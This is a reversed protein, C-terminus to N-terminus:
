GAASVPERAGQEEQAASAEDLARLQTRFSTAWPDSQECANVIPEWQPNEAFMPRLTAIVQANPADGILVNIVTTALAGALGGQNEVECLMQWVVGAAQEPSGNLVAQIEEPSLYIPEPGTGSGAPAHGNQQAVPEPPQAPSPPASLPTPPAEPVAASPPRAGNMVPQAVPQVIARRRGNAGQGLAGAMSQAMQAAAEPNSKAVLAVLGMMLAPALQPFVSKIVGTVGSEDKDSGLYEKIEDLEALSELLGGGEGSSRRRRNGPLRDLYSEAMRDRFEPDEALRTAAAQLGSAEVQKQLAELNKRAVVTPDSGDELGLDKLIMQDRLKPNRDLYSQEAKFKQLKIRDDVAMQRRPRRQKLPQEKSVLAKAAARIGM